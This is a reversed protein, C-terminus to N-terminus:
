FGKSFMSIYPLSPSVVQYTPVTSTATEGHKRTAAEAPHTVPEYKPYYKKKIVNQCKAPSLSQCLPGKELGWSQFSYPQWLYQLYTVM